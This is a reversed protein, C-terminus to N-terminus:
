GALSGAGKEVRNGLGASGNFDHDVHRNLYDLTM